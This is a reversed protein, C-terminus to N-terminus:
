KDVVLTMRWPWHVFVQAGTLGAQHALTLVEEPQYARLISLAGDHRTLRNRAFFPQILHFLFYPIWGRVLDSMVIGRRSIREAELFAHVLKAPELHHLFLTSISYDIARTAIPPSQADAQVLSLQRSSQMSASGIKLNRGSWDVGMVHVSLKQCSAWRLIRGALSGSGTGFDALVSRRGSARLRPLLHRFLAQDGGFTRNIRDMELLNETVESNSGIGQDLWEQDM